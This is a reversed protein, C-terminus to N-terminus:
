KKIKRPKKPGPIELRGVSCGCRARFVLVARGNPPAMKKLEAEIERHHNIPLEFLCSKSGDPPLSNKVCDETELQIDFEAAKRLGRCNPNGCKQSTCMVLAWTALAAFFVSLGISGYILPADCIEDKVAYSIVGIMGISGVVVLKVYPYLLFGFAGVVAIFIVIDIVASRSIHPCAPFNSCSPPSPQKRNRHAHNNLRSKPFSDLSSLTSAMVALQDVLKPTYHDVM